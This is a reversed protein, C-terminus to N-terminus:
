NESIKKLVSIYTLVENVSLGKLWEKSKSRMVSEIEPVMKKGKNSLRLLKIRKDKADREFEILDKKILKGILETIFPADVDLLGAMEAFRIPKIADNLVGLFAWDVTGLGYPKLAVATRNKLSRYAKAQLLGVRYTKLNKRATNVKKIFSIM